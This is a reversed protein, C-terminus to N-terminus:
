DHETHIGNELFVRAVDVYNSQIVSKLQSEQDDWVMYKLLISVIAPQNAKCAISLLTDDPEINLKYVLYNFIEVQGYKCATYKLVEECQVNIDYKLLIQLCPLEVLQIAYKLFEVNM